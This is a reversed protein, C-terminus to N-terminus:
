AWKGLVSMLIIGAMLSFLSLTTRVLSANRLEGYMWDHAWMSVFGTWILIGASFADLTGIAVITSKDNGNFHDLVGIGIAMGLPTTIAFASAMICKTLLSTSLAAIRAGLALGEFIQHFLIVIFLVIYASDGAVVLTVGLIISHFIIGAELAAVTVKDEKAIGHLENEELSNASVSSSAAGTADGKNEVPPQAAVQALSRQTRHEVVRHALYECLFTIFAGAIVIATTTAEYSLRGLCENAFMLQAHTLLHILATSIIIGTGFQKIITFSSRITSFRSLFIPAFVGMACTVLIAFLTGIRLPVNYDRDVRECTTAAEGGVCHRPRNPHTRHQM